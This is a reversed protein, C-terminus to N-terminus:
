PIGVSSVEVFIFKCFLIRFCVPCCGVHAFILVCMFLLLLSRPVKPLLLKLCVYLCSLIFYFVLPFFVEGFLGPPASCSVSYGQAGCGGPGMDEQDRPRGPGMDGPGWTERPGVDGGPRHM